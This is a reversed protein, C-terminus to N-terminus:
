IFFPLVSASLRLLLGAVLEDFGEFGLTWDFIPRLFLFFFFVISAGVFLRCVWWYGYSFWEFTKMEAKLKNSLLLKLKLIM